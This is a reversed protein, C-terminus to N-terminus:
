GLLLGSASIFVHESAAWKERSSQRLRVLLFVDRQGDCHAHSTERSSSVRNGIATPAHFAVRGSTSINKGRFLRSGGFSGDMIGAGGSPIRVNYM